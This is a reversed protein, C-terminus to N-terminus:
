GVVKGLAELDRKLDKLLLKADVVFYHNFNTLCCIRNRTSLSFFDKYIRCCIFFYM